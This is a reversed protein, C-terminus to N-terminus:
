INNEETYYYSDNENNYSFPENFNGYLESVWSTKGYGRPSMIVGLEGMQYGRMQNGYLSAFDMNVTLRVPEQSVPLVIKLCPNTSFYEGGGLWKPKSKIFNFSKIHYKILNKEM